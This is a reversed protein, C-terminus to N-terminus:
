FLAYSEERCSLRRQEQLLILQRAYILVTGYYTTHTATITYLLRLLLPLRSRQPPFFFYERRTVKEDEEGRENARFLFTDYLFRPQMAVQHRQNQGRTLHGIGTCSQLMGCLQEFIASLLKPSLEHRTPPETHTRNTTQTPHTHTGKASVSHM